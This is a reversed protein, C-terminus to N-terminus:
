VTVTEGAREPTTRSLQCVPAFRLQANMKKVAYVWPLAMM